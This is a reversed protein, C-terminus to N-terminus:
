RMASASSPQKSRECALWAMLRHSMFALYASTTFVDSTTAKKSLRGPPMNSRGFPEAAVAGFGRRAAFMHICARPVVRATPLGGHRSCRLCDGVVVLSASHAIDDQRRQLRRSFVDLMQRRVIERRDVFEM